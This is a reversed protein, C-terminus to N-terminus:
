GFESILREAAIRAGNLETRNAVEQGRTRVQPQLAERLPSSM